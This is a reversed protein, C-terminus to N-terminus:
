VVLSLVFEEAGLVFLCARVPLESGLDFVHHAEASLAAALDDEALEVTRLRPSLDVVQQVPEGDATPFVTRLVEHRITVDGLAAELAARDLVGHFRTTLPCNYASGIGGMQNLFWLRRQAFSVPFVFDEQSM